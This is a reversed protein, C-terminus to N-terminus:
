CEMGPICGHCGVEHRVRSPPGQQDEDEHHGELLPHGDVQQRDEECAEGLSELQVELLPTLDLGEKEHSGHHSQEGGPEHGLADGRAARSQQGQPEGAQTRNQYGRAGSKRRSRRPAATIPIPVRQASETVLAVM